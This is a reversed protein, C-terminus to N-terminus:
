DKVVPMGEAQWLDLGGSLSHAKDFGMQKLTDAALASRGGSQCYTVVTRARAQSLTENRHKFELDAAGELLGRPVSLAGPIHGAAYEHPERVDVILLDDHNEIMEDLDDPKIEQIRRRADAVFDALRKAM